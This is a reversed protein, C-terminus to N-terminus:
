GLGPPTPRSSWKPCAQLESDSNALPSDLLTPLQSIAKSGFGPTWTYKTMDCSLGGHLVSIPRLPSIHNLGQGLWPRTNNRDLGHNNLLHLKVSGQELGFCTSRVYGLCAKRKCRPEGNLSQDVELPSTPESARVAAEAAQQWPRLGPLQRDRFGGLPSVAGGFDFPSDLLWASFWASKPVKKIQRIPFM